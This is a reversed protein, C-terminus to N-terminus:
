RVIFAFHSHFFDDIISLRLLLFVGMDKHVCTDTPGLVNLETM